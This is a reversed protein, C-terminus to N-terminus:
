KEPDPYKRPYELTEGPPAELRGKKGCTALLPLAICAILLAAFIRRFTESM